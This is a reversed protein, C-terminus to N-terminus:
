LCGIGPFQRRFMDLYERDDALLVWGAGMKAKGCARMGCVKTNRGTTGSIEGWDDEALNGSYFVGTIAPSNFAVHGEVFDWVIGMLARVNRHHAQWIIGTLHAVRRAGARLDSGAPVNGITCKIELGLPYNRLEPETARAAQRPLIDPHGKEIPNVIAGVRDALSECFVAGIVAGTTKFDISKFLSSPLKVLVQNTLTVAHLVDGSNVAFGCRISFTENVRFNM